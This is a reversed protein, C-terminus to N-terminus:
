KLSVVMQGPSVVSVDGGYSCACSCGSNVCPKGGIMLPSGTVIWKTTQPKCPQPTLVGLAAATAAAVQPNAMSSCMGFSPINVMGEADDITAVRKGGAQVMTSTVKLSSPASGFSCKLSAGAVVVQSM